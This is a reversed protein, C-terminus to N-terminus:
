LTTNSDNRDDPAVLGALAGALTMAVLGYSLEATEIRALGGPHSMGIM